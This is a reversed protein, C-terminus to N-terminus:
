YKLGNKEAKLFANPPLDKVYTVQPLPESKVVYLNNEKPYRMGKVADQLAYNFGIVLAFLLVIIKM